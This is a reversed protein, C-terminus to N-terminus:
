RSQSYCCPIGLGYMIQSVYCSSNVQDNRSEPFLGVPEHQTFHIASRYTGFVQDWLVIANGYNNNAVDRETAHHLRHVENTSFFWNIYGQRSEFNIHQILLIPQTIALYGMISESSFGLFIAPLVGLLLNIAYNIPHFRLNNLSYLRESSHHLRHLRWLGSLEHHLRHSWYKGFEILLTVVVIEAPLWHIMREFNSLALLQILYLSLWPMMLKLVPDMIFVLVLASSIDTLVDAHRQNWITRYPKIRELILGGLLAILSCILIAYELPWNQYYFFVFGMIGQFLMLLTLYKQIFNMWFNKM